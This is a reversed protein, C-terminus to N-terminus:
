QEAWGLGELSVIFEEAEALLNEMAEPTASVPAFRGLDCEEWCHNLRDVTQQDAGRRELEETMEGLRLGAAPVNMKDGLYGTIARAVEGYFATSDQDKMLKKARALRKRAMKHARRLRAYRVDQRLRQRQRQYLVAGIVLLPPLAWSSLFLDSQYLHKGEDRLVPSATKIHRIDRGVLAVAQQRTGPAVPASEPAGPKVALILPETEVTRYVGAEPDFYTLRFPPITYQGAEKPIFLKEFTKDGQVRYNEISTSTTSKAEYSRFSELEPWLPEPVTQVNGTGSVRFSLTVPENVTAESKDLWTTVQYQGV